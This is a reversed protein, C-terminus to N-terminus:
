SIRALRELSTTMSINQALLEMADQSRITEQRIVLPAQLIPQFLFTYTVQKAIQFLHALAFGPSRQLKGPLHGGQQLLAQVQFSLLRVQIGEGEGLPGAGEFGPQVLQNGRLAAQRVFLIGAKGFPEALMPRVQQAEQIDIPQIGGIVLGFPHDSWGDDDAFGIAAVPGLRTGLGVGNQRANQDSTTLM